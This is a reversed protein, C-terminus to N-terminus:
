TSDDRWISLLERLERGSEPRGSLFVNGQSAVSEGWSEVHLGTEKGVSSCPESFRCFGFTEGSAESPSQCEVLVLFGTSQKSYNSHHCQAM